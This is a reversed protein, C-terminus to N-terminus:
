IKRNANSFVRWQRKKIAAPLNPATGNLLMKGEHRKCLDRDAQSLTVAQVGSFGIAGHGAGAM